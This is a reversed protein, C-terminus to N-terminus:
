GDRSGEPVPPWSRATAATLRAAAGPDHAPLIVLGPMARSLANVKHVSQRMQKKEGVGPLMGAALLDADYTLDGVM